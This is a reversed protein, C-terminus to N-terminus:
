RLVTAKLWLKYIGDNLDAAFLIDFSNRNMSKGREDMRIFNKIGISLGDWAKM